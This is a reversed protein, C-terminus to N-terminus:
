QVVESTAAESEKEAQLRAAEMNKMKQFDSFTFMQQNKKFMELNNCMQEFDMMRYERGAVAIDISTKRFSSWPENNKIVNRISIDFAHGNDKKGDPYYDDIVFQNDKNYKAKEKATFVVNFGSDIMMDRVKDHYANIFGYDDRPSFKIQAFDRGDYGLDVARKMLCFDYFASSSDLAITGIAGTEKEVAKLKKIALDVMRLVDDYSKVMVIGIDNKNKLSAFKPLILKTREETALVFLPKPFTYMFHTKGTGEQGYIIVKRVTRDKEETYLDEITKFPDDQKKAALPNVFGGNIKPVNIGTPTTSTPIQIAM